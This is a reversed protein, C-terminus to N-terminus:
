NKISYKIRILSELSIFVSSFITQKIFIYNCRMIEKIIKKDQFINLMYNKTKEAWCSNKM